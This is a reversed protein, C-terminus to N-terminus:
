TTYEANIRVYDYSFDCTHVTAASEGGTGLDIPPLADMEGREWHGAAAAAWGRLREEVM